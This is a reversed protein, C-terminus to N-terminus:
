KGQLAEAPSVGLKAALSPPAMAKYARSCLELEDSRVRATQQMTTNDDPDPFLQASPKKQCMCLCPSAMGGYRCALKAESRVRTKPGRRRAQQALPALVLM